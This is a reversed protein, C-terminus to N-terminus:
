EVLISSALACFFLARIVVSHSFMSYIPSFFLYHPQDIIFNWKLLCSKM